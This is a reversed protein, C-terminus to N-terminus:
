LLGQPISDRPAPTDIRHPILIQHKHSPIFPPAFEETLKLTFEIRSDTFFHHFNHINKM